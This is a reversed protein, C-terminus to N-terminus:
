LAFTLICCDNHLNHLIYPVNSGNITIGDSVCKFYIAVAYQLTAYKVAKGRETIEGNADLYLYENVLMKFNPMRSISEIYNKFSNSVFDFCQRTIEHHEHSNMKFGTSNLFDSTHNGLYLSVVKPAHQLISADIDNYMFM